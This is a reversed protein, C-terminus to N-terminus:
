GPLTGRRLAASGLKMNVSRAGCHRLDASRARKRPTVYPCALAHGPSGIQPRPTMTWVGGQVEASKAEYKQSGALKNM